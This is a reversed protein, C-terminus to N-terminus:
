LINQCPCSTFGKVHLFLYVLQPEVRNLHANFAQPAEVEARYWHVDYQGTCKRQNHIVWLSPFKQDPHESPAFSASMPPSEFVDDAMSYMEDHADVQVPSTPKTKWM